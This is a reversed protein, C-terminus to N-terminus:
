ATRILAGTLTGSVTTIGKDTLCQTMDVQGTLLSVVLSDGAFRGATVVGQVLFTPPIATAQVHIQLTSSDTTANSLLWTVAVTADVSLGTCSGFGSGTVTATASIVRPGPTLPDEICNTAIANAAVAFARQTINVGPNATATGSVECQVDVSQATAAGADVATVLGLMTVGICLLAFLHRIRVRKM